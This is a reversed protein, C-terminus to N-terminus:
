YLESTQMRGDDSWTMKIQHIGSTSETPKDDRGFFQRMTPNGYQDFEYIVKHAGWRTTQPNGNEDIFRAVNEVAYASPAYRIDAIASLGKIPKEEIDLNLWRTFQRQQNYEIQTMAVGADDATLRKGEIGLNYMRTLLGQADFSFRTVLYGFGPRNRVIKGATDYRHEVVDGNSEVGWTYRAIGFDNNIIDGSVNYFSLERRRNREDLEFIAEYVDGSVLTRAGHHDYFQRIEQNDKYSIEIHPARVFRDTFAVTKGHLQYRLRVLRGDDDYDFQFHKINKADSQSVQKACSIDAFPTERFSIGTCWESYAAAQVNLSSVCLVCLPLIIRKIRFM